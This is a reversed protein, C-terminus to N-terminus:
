SQTKDNDASKVKQAVEGGRLVTTRSAPNGGQYEELMADGLKIIVAPVTKALAPKAATQPGAVSAATMSMAAIGMMATLLRETKQINMMEEKTIECNPLGAVTGFYSYARLKADRRKLRKARNPQSPYRGWKPRRSTIIGNQSSNKVALRVLFWLFEFLCAFAASAFFLM